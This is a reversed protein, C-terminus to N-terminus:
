RLPSVTVMNAAGTSTITGSGMSTTRRKVNPVSSRVARKRSTSVVGATQAAPPSGRRTGALTHFGPATLVLGAAIDFVFHDGTALVARAILPRWPSHSDLILVQSLWREGRETLREAFRHGAQPGLRFQAVHQLRDLTTWAEDISSPM